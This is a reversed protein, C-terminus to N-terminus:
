VQGILQKWKHSKCLLHYTNYGSKLLTSITDEISLNKTDTDTMLADIKEWLSLPQINQNQYTVSLTM